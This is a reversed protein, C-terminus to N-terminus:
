IEKRQQLAATDEMMGCFNAKTLLKGSFKGFFKPIEAFGHV